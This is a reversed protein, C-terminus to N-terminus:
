SRCSSSASFVAASNPSASSSFFQPSAGTACSLRSGTWGTAALSCTSTRFPPPNGPTKMAGSTTRIRRVLLAAVVFSVVDVQLVVQVGFVSLLTGGLAPGALRALNNSVGLASNAASLEDATVTLPVTAQFAPGIFQELLSEFVLVPYLVWLRLPTAILIILPLLVIVQVVYIRTLIRLRDFRDVLVGALSGFAVRPAFEALFTFGTALTSGTSRYVFFPLAVDLAWDGVMSMLDATWLLAFARQRFVVLARPQSLFPM